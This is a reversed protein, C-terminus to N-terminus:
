PLLVKCRPHNSLNVTQNNAFVSSPLIYGENSETVVFIYDVEKGSYSKKLTTRLDVIYAGSKLLSSTFKVQVRNLSEGDDYILDYRAEQIPISVAYNLHVYYSLAVAFATSGKHLNESFM